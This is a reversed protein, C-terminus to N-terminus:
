TAKAITLKRAAAVRRETPLSARGYICQRVGKLKWIGDKADPNKIAVYGCHELRHPLARRSRRESLWEAIAGVAAAILQKVTLVDPNGLADIVDALEADEPASNASVIDWFAPTQPPPAKPDFGSLDLEALYAAVHGFGGAHYWRWIRNWYEPTFDEKTFDSWAVYHRRDDAPLYIGDTKHNTTIIFALSTSCTINACTNRTWACCTPRIPM